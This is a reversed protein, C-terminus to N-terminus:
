SKERSKINVVTPEKDFYHDLIDNVSITEVNVVKAPDRKREANVGDVSKEMESDAGNLRNNRRM